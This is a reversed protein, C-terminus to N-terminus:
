ALGLWLDELWGYWPRAGARDDRASGAWLLATELMPNLALDYKGAMDGAESALALDAALLPDGRFQIKYYNAAALGLVPLGTCLYAAWSRGTLFYFLWILLAPPFLNLACLTLDDEYVARLTEYSLEPSSNASVYLALVGLFIGLATLGLGQWAPRLIKRWARM